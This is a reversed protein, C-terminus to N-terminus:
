AALEKLAAQVTEIDSYRHRVGRIEQYPEHGKGAVVVIDGRRAMAIAERVARARDPIVMCEGSVGELIDAVIALPDENRPNDSTIVVHDACRIAIRGMQPRKGRDRDGGCGFVCYLQRARQRGRRMRAQMTERMTLLIKELADPTHAYDVVVLPRRGGGYREARGPAPPMSQLAHVAEDLGIRSALLASLAALLNSANFRGLLASRVHACGWPTAVDFTIGDASVALNRGQVHEIRRRKSKGFGYGIVEVRPSYRRAALEAGFEDDLNLAACKLSDWRFLRAKANRYSRMDGHYDLHDRTLNTFVAVDFDVGAVRGQELGHSSVEMSVARAGDREWDRLRGHLWVADPTTNTGAALADPFGSGLTGAVACKRGAAALARAIWLSCSTKGNTGTVGIMWLRSSPRGYVHSAISGARQRLHPIALYPVGPNIKGKFDAAEVLVSSAGHAVAQGIFDRGDRAEGPYAVFTDGSRLTRSDSTLRRIGLADVEAWGIPDAVKLHALQQSRLGQDEATYNM